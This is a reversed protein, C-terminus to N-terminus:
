KDKRKPLGVIRPVPVTVKPKSIGGVVLPSFLCKIKLTLGSTRACFLNKVLQRGNVTEHVM